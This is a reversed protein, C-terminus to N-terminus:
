KDPRDDTIQPPPPKAPDTSEAAHVPLTQGKVQVEFKYYGLFQAGDLMAQGPNREAFEQTARVWWVVVGTAILGVALFVL